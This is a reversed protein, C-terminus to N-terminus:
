RDTNNTQHLLNKEPGLSTM